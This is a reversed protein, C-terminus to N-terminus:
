EDSKTLNSPHYWSNSEEKVFVQIDKQFAVTRIKGYRTRVKEGKKFKCLVKDMDLKRGNMEIRDWRM